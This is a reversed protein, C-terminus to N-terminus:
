FLTILKADKILGDKILECAKPIDKVHVHYSNNKMEFIICGSKFFMASIEETNYLANDVEIWM